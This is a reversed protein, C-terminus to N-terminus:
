TIDIAEDIEESTQDPLEIILEETAPDYVKFTKESKSDYWRGNIFPKAEFLNKNKLIPAM